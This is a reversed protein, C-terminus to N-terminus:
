KASNAKTSILTFLNTDELEHLADPSLEPDDFKMKSLKDRVLKSQRAIRILEPKIIAIEATSFNHDAVLDMATADNKERAVEM